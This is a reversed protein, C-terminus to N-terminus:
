VSEEKEQVRMGNGFLNIFQLLSTPVIIEGNELMIGESNAMVVKKYKIGPATLYAWLRKQAAKTIDGADKKTKAFVFLYEGERGLVAYLNREDNSIHIDGSLMLDKIVESVICTFEGKGIGHRKSPFIRKSITIVMKAVLRNLSEASLKSVTDIDVERKVYYEVDIYVDSLSM